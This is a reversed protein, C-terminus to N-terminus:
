IGSEMSGPAAEGNSMKKCKEITTTYVWDGQKVSKHPNLLYTDFNHCLAYKSLNLKILKKTTQINRNSHATNVFCHKGFLVQAIYAFTGACFQTFIM